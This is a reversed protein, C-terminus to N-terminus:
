NLIILKTVQENKSGNTLSRVVLRALYLGATLKKDSNLAGLEMVIVRSASEPLTIEYHQVLEGTVKQIFVQAQLDDGSRNHTFFLTTNEIFPNPYNGFTEIVLGQGDTVVFEVTAESGNNYIDWAKVTITHKGPELNRLPYTLWGSNAHNADAVFYDNLVFGKPDDDLFGILSKEPDFGSINVGSNDVINAILHTDPTTIGGNVFTKDGIFLTMAPPLVENVPSKEMTGVKFQTYSGIADRLTEPDSAYLSLRGADVERAMNTPLMFQISFTGNTVNAKGRFLANAWEKYQFPPDNKGITTFTKQKDFLTVEVTGNFDSITEGTSTIRGLAVVESLAKLTDSGNITKISSVEVSLPPLALTM